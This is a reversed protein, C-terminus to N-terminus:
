IRHFLQHRGRTYCALQRKSCAGRGDVSMYQTQRKLGQAERRRGAVRPSERHRRMVSGLFAQGRIYVGLAEHEAGNQQLVAEVYLRGARELDVIEAQLLVAADELAHAVDIFAALLDVADGDGIFQHLEALQFGAVAQTVQNGQVVAKRLNGVDIGVDPQHLVLGDQAADDEGRLVHDIAAHHGLFRRVFDEGAGLLGQELEALGLDLAAQQIGVLDQLAVFAADAGEEVGALADLADAGAEELQIFVGAAHVAPVQEDQGSARGHSLGGESQVDRLVDRERLLCVTATKESSIDFSDSSVRM